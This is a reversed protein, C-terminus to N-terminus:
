RMAQEISEAHSALEVDVENTEYRGNNRSLDINGAAIDDSPCSKEIYRSIQRWKPDKGQEWGGYMRIRCWETHGLNNQPHHEQIAERCACSDASGCKRFDAQTIRVRKHLADTARQALAPNDAEVDVM